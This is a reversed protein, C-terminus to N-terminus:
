KALRYQEFLGFYNSNKFKVPTKWGKGYWHVLYEEINKFTLLKHGEFDIYDLHDLADHSLMSDEKFIKKNYNHNHLIMTVTPNKIGNELYSVADDVTYVKKKRFLIIHWFRAIKYLWNYKFYKKRRFFNVDCCRKVKYDWCWKKFRELTTHTIVFLDISPEYRNNIDWDKNVWKPILYPNLSNETDIVRDPYKEKLKKYTDYDVIIDGDYDHEILKGDRYIGLLSGYAVAGKGNMKDINEMVEILLNKVEQMKIKHKEKDFKEKM